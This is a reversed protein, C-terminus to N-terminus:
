QFTVDQYKLWGSREPKDSQKYTSTVMGGKSNWNYTGSFSIMEGVALSRLPLAKEINHKILLKRGSSLRILIVQAQYPSQQDDLLKTIRGISTVRTGGRQQKYLFEIHEVGKLLSDAHSDQDEYLDNLQKNKDNFCGILLSLLPLLLFWKKM